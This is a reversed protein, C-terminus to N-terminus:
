LNIKAKAWKYLWIADVANDDLWLGTESDFVKESPPDQAFDYTFRSDAKVLARCMGAKSAGAGAGAFAKLTQVPVCEMLTHNCDPCVAAWVAARLSAWLQAQVQSHVFQVDEFIVVDLRGFGQVFDYLRCIRPDGRRTLRQKGWQAIEKAGALRISGAVFPGPATNHAFGTTTAIDLALIKM